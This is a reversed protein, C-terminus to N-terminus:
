KVGKGNVIAKKGDLIKLEKKEEKKPTEKIGKLLGSFLGQKAM